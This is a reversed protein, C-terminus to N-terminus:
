NIKAITQNKKLLSKPKNNETDSNDDFHNDVALFKFYEPHCVKPIM